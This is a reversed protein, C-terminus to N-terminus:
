DSLYKAYARCRMDALYNQREGGIGCEDGARPIPREAWPTEALAPPVSRSRGTPAYNKRYELKAVFEPAPVSINRARYTREEIPM